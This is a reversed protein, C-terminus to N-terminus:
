GPPAAPAALAADAAAELVDLALDLESDTIV